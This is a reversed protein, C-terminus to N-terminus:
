SRSFGSIGAVWHSEGIGSRTRGGSVSPSNDRALIGDLGIGNHKRHYLNPRGPPNAGSLFLTVERSFPKSLRYDDSSKLVSINRLEVIMIEASQLRNQLASHM